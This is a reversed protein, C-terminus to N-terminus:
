KRFYKKLKGPKIRKLENVVIKENLEAVERGTHTHELPFYSAVKAQGLAEYQLAVLENLDIFFVDEEKAIQAAWGGYSDESRMVKGGKWDNRPIPSCIIPVAGKSKADRVYKRLYWGYTHVVERKKTIPNDIEIADDGTGKLTGRARATDDLPGSDNHGFQMLVYDGRKLHKMITDWRGETLFTRSSRGGIANNRITLKATDFYTVLFSGWGWLGDKGKGDGNKVTSDGIIYLVPKEKKLLIFSSGTFFLIVCLIRFIRKGPM